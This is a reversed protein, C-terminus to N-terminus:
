VALKIRVLRILFPQRIHGLEFPILANGHMLKIEAGDEVQTVPTDHGIYETLAIIVRKDVFGKVLSHFGIWVNMRQEMAVSPELVGASDKVMFELFCPHRLTHGAHGVTNVVPWHLAEPANQLPFTVIAPTKGALLFKDLHDFAIDTVVVVATDLAM